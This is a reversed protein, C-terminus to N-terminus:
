LIVKVGSLMLTIYQFDPLLFARYTSADRVQEIIARIPKQKHSDVLARMNEVVWTINRIQSLEFTILILCWLM